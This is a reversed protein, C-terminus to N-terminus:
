GSVEISSKGTVESVIQLLEALRFPKEIMADVGLDLALRRESNSIFSSMLIVNYATKERRLDRLLEIGSGGPMRLDAIVTRFTDRGNLQDRASKGDHVASVEYGNAELVEQLLDRSEQDDDVILIKQGAMADLGLGERCAKRPCKPSWGLRNKCSASFALFATPDQLPPSLDAIKDTLQTASTGV